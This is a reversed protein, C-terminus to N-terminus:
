VNPTNRNLALWRSRHFNVSNDAWGEVQRSVLNRTVGIFVPALAADDLMTQEAEQLIVLRAKPDLTYDSREMLADYRPNSYSGYNLDTTSTQMLFLYDKADRYDAIWGVWGVSFDQKRLIDYHIQSESPVIRAECGVERWMEQLAVAVIKAETTNSTNFDFSLANAPGFGAQALLRRAEVIRAAMPLSKFRLQAGGSYFPITQPVFAYAPTEGGRMVKACMIDRDIALSLATRVRLDDFPKAKFNFQVYQSLLYPSLRVERRMTRKLWDVQQPPMTDTLLDFEGSRFRKIAASSDQTPCYFIKEIKVASADYFRPNKVLEIHDNSLWKKLMYPGNAVYHGAQVWGDGYKEVVHAPVPMATQHMLLQPLYPVQYIFRMELTTDDLARVGIREPPLKGEAAQQMNLIPYLIAVYQAATKPDAIRRFAYVFDHATVKVGDSWTHDRIKFTYTLGDASVAYGLAAGPIPMANADETMLGMLMDCIVNNEWNGEAKHPDLTDPEAGNGRSLTDPNAAVPAFAKSSRGYRALAWATSGVVAAAALAARRTLRNRYEDAM